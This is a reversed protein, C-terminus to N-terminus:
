IMLGGYVARPYFKSLGKWQIIFLNAIPYVIKGSFSPKNIRCFSEIFLIKSNFFLKGLYCAPVAVGAGTSIIISPREKLLIFLSQFINKLLRIPSRRPDEVFYVRERVSLELSDQRKFTIFFHDYKKFLKELSMIETLHGGASVAICIKM